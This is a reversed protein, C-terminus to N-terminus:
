YKPVALSESEISIDSFHQDQSVRVAGRKVLELMALFSLIVDIKEGKGKGSFERFSTRLSKQVRQSLDEIVEELSIVKKVSVKPLFEPKPANRLVTNITLFINELSIEPTPSFIIKKIKRERAFYLPSSGFIGKILESANRYRKYLELRKELDFINDKEEESLELTPLLSKSKILLLTSAILIFEASDAMPFDQESQMHEIFTDAVHSLSIDNIHMKRKEVMELLVELPGKFEGIELEFETEM